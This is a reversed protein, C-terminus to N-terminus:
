PIRRTLPCGAADTEPVAVPVGDLVADLADRLERTTPHLRYKGPALYRDDIRGRYVRLGRRDLVVAEPTVRVGHLRALAQDPDRLLEGPLAFERAYARLRDQSVGPDTYVQRFAVGLPAYDVALRGIEPAFANSIPCEPSLFLLVRVPAEDPARGACGALGLVLIATRIV